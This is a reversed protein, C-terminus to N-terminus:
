LKIKKKKVNVIWNIVKDLDNKQFIIGYSYGYRFEIKYHIFKNELELLEVDEILTMLPLGAVKRYHICDSVGIYDKMGELSIDLSFDRLDEVSCNLEKSSYEYIAKIREPLDKEYKTVAKDVIKILNYRTIVSSYDMLERKM